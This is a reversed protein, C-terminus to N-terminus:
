ARVVAQALRRLVDGADGLLLVTQDDGLLGNEVGAFGPGGSRSLVVVRRAARVNVVPMGSLPGTAATAAAPNVTDNAGVVLAVDTQRLRANGAALEYLEGHPVRADDLVLSMHGPVRGAVPHVVYFVDVGRRQLLEALQRLAHQAQALALGYGPVLAVRRSGALLAAVEPVSRPHPGPPPGGGSGANRLGRRAPGVTPGAAPSRPPPPAGPQRDRAAVAPPPEGHDLVRTAAVVEDDLKAVPKGDVVLLQVLGLVNHAYLFSAHAPLGAAPNALGVVTARGVVVDAGARTPECNGGSDAAADVVVAGPGMQEIMATTVLIPARRGPVAATTIVVDSAAVEAGLALHLRATESPSLDRAYGGAGEALVDIPLFAAGLSRAEDRAAARVDYATVTAGLRRLIAIAQLGAVGTGLVLVRAPAVTGAATVLTPIFRGSREAAVLAARYGAATAQSSLADMPQARAVRPIRDLSFYSVGKGALVARVESDEAPASLSVVSTAEPVLRAEALTPPNVRVHLDAGVLAAGPGRVVTAGAARFAPDGIAARRGAGAEVVVDFGSGVLREVVEPVLAVRREGSWSEALVVLRM